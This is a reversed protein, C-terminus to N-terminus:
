QSTTTVSWYIIVSGNGASAGGRVDKVNTASPEAFSSGGGGGGGGGDGSTSATGEGGGGGGYYGAGAGGGGGGFGGGQGGGNGGNGLQGHKGRRGRSFGGRMGGAGGRGGADQRGGKGGFGESSAHYTPGQGKGGLMGGGSGGNGAGYIGYGGGGGGGAAVVIRDALVNGGQRIDSAGGGGSGDDGSGGAPSGGDGGGNYGGKGIAGGQSQEGQGGVFIALTERPAVPITATVTGGLGGHAHRYRGTSDAGSPGSVVVTLQTVGAPVRFNQQVPEYHFEKKHTTGAAYAASAPTGPLSHSGCGALLGATACASLVVRVKMPTAM